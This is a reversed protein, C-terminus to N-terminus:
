QSKSISERLEELNQQMRQAVNEAIESYGQQVMSAIESFNDMATKLAQEVAETNKRAVEEPGSESAAKIADAAEAAAKQMMQSHKQLVSQMGSVSAQSAAFMAEMNKRQIDALAAADLSAFTSSALMEQFQSALKAPDMNRMIEAPDFPNHTSM